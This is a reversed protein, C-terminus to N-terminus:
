AGAAKGGLIDGEIVMPYSAPHIGSGTQVGHLLSFCRLFARILSCNVNNCSSSSRQKYVRDIIRLSIFDLFSRHVPCTAQVPLCSTCVFNQNLFSMNYPWKPSRSFSKLMVNFNIFPIYNHHLFNISNAWAISM